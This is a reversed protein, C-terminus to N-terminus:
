FLRGRCENAGCQCEMQKINGDPGVVSDLAYGYDYTLEQMPPINDAAFLMIRAFRVDHHSSLICQVFLNPDCSHNIFRAVNGCSGADICFESESDEKIDDEKEVVNSASTSVDGQRRERGGLGHMTHWCDIDFIYDNESVNDLETNRRLVGTYECVPAGSPIFDWSRVAWGKNKTRYVELRYKLAKQSIRNICKPGCGCSPGCEYVVDKPEILRGGNKHVYPFDSGNLRACPCYTPNTCNGKCNCGSASPPAIVDTAIQVSKMYKFGAPAIPPVDVINTVPIPLNEEGFSIDDCVLSPSKSAAKTRREEFHVQDMVVKPQGVLRKLRYKFVTFGSVGKEARHDIVKYLGCYTYVKGSYSDSCKHGRIVRVPISQEMNNKLALNGRNMIQDKIQHKSGLLDNGGQGTYVVEDSNDVDDEYQGSLVIAVALPYTSGNQKEMKGSHKKIYDIGSLWHGHFGVAVMEARSLFRHGVVIGPLHGFRKDPYLIEKKELMETVAKLDPRKMSRKADASPNGSKNCRQEEEQVFHLYYKNFTRLTEKVRTEARQHMSNALSSEYDTWTLYASDKIDLINTGDCEVTSSERVVDRETVRRKIDSGAENLREQSLCDVKPRKTGSNNRHSDSQRKQNSGQAQEDSVDFKPVDSFRSRDSGYYPRKDEPINKLRPSSRREVLASIQIEASHSINNTNTLHLVKGQTDHESPVDSFRSRDSGYYPRKDEPINKLRPSSRREVLASIQIEASHSINNTNTLHLVKGQTDHESPVDSFRSRDSGYYPRKDEPINKLRPSSRREVLASKKIEASHSINNTNTLHLVKGQTDHESSTKRSACPKHVLQEVM